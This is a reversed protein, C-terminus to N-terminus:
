GLLLSGDGKKRRRLCLLAGLMLLVLSTPEPVYILDINGLDGGGALSGVVTLDGLVFDKALGTQAVNGFSLSGFSSGFTAKFINGDADNDFSGGLNAAADGTFIGAASDINISTLEAGAPADVGVEGTSPNYTVSAQGDGAAGNDAVAGYPGTLYVNANLAAIIDLQDFLGNGAPPSGQAGGPAGDWDGDGWTAAQGTLYKAAIQVQVLDLQDFDLDQDADGPQLAGAVVGDFNSVGLNMASVIQEETLTGSFVGVEDLRGEFYEPDCCSSGIFFDNFTPNGEASHFQEGIFEGNVYFLAENDATLVIAAHAWEDLELPVAQDFDKVGYTTIELSDGVTGWGWGGGVPFGGFVRNKHDFQEPNIWAMVTFDSTLDGFGNEDGPGIYVQGTLGDFYAGSGFGPAGEVNPDVDDQYEGNLGNGSSDVAEADVDTEELQWYGLLEQATASSFSSTTALSAAIAVFLIAGCRHFMQFTM